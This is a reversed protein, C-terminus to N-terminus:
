KFGGSKLINLISINWGQPGIGPSLIVEPRKERSEYSDDFRKVLVAIDAARFMAFDNHSDGIAISRINKTNLKKRYGQMILKLAKGKDIVNVLHMFRGGYLLRLNYKKIENNLINKTKEDYFIPISFERQMANKLASGTLNTRKSIEDASSNHFGRILYNYKKSIKELVNKLDEYRKGLRYCWLEGSVEPKISINFFGPLSFVAAGNEVVFPYDKLGLEESFYLLEARTKSSILILPIDSQRVFDLAPLADKYSYTNYDLLTGDLDTFIIYYM